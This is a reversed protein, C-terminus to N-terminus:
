GHEESQRYERPSRDKCTLGRELRAERRRLFPSDRPNSTTGRRDSRRRALAQQSRDFDATVVAQAAEAACKLVELARLLDIREADDAGRDVRRVVEVWGEVLASTLRRTVTDGLGRTPEVGPQEIM